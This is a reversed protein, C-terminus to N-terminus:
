TRPDTWSREPMPTALLMKIFVLGRDAVEYGSSNKSEKLIEMRIFWAITESVAQAHERPHREPSVYYHLLVEIDNPTLPSRVFM